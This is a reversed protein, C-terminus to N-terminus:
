NCTGHQMAEALVKEPNNEDDREIEDDASQPASTSSDSYSALNKIYAV